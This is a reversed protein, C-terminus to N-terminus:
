ELVQLPLTIQISQGEENSQLGGGLLRVRAAIEPTLRRESGGDEFVLVLTDDQVLLRVRLSKTGAQAHWEIM